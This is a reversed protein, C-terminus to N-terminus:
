GAPATAAPSLAKYELIGLEEGSDIYLRDGELTYPFTLYRKGLEDYLRIVEGDVSVRFTASYGAAENQETMQGSRADFSLIFNADYVDVWANACLRAWPSADPSSAAPTPSLAPSPSPLPQLRQGGCGWLFAVAALLFGLALGRCPAFVHM